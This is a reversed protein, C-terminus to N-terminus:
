LGNSIHKMSKDFVIFFVRINKYKQYSLTMHNHTVHVCMHWYINM